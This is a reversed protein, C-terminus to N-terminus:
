KRSKLYPLYREMGEKMMNTVGDATVTAGTLGDVDHNPDKAGGKRSTISIYEGKDNFIKKGIFSAPYNPNDKIEAGLGPTEGQHDFSAGVITNMDKDLAINGWIADWLGSGRVSVISYQADGKKYEYIPYLREEVPRKREKAMDINEAKGAKYGQAIVAAEDLFEGKINMVKQTINNDFIGQVDEDSLAAIPQELKDGIASLIARKNYVAANNDHIPKLVTFMSALALAVITTMAM